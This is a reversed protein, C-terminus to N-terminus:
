CFNISHMKYLGKRNGLKWEYAVVPGTHSLDVAM